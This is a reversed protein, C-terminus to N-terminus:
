QNLSDIVTIGTDRMEEIVRDNKSKGGSAKKAQSERSGILDLPAVIKTREKNANNLIKRMSMATQSVCTTLTCGTVIVSSKERQIIENNLWDTFRKETTADNEAKQVTYWQGDVCIADDLDDSGETCLNYLPSNQDNTFKGIPYVSRVLCRTALIGSKLDIFRHLREFTEDIPKSDQQGFAEGFTGRSTFGKLADIVVLSQGSGFDIKNM